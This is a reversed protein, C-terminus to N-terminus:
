LLFGLPPVVVRVSESLVVSQLPSPSENERPSERRVERSNRLQSQRTRSEQAHSVLVHLASDAKARLEAQM